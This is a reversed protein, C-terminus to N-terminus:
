AAALERRIEEALLLTMHRRWDPGGHADRWWAADILFGKKTNEPSTSLWGSLKPDIGAFAAPNTPAYAILNALKAQNDARTMTDILKMAADKNRSGRPM